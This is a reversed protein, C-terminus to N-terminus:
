GPLRYRPRDRGTANPVAIRPGGPKAVMTATQLVEFRYGGAGPTTAQELVDASFATLETPTANEAGATLGLPRDSFLGGRLVIGVLLLAILPLAVAVVRPGATPLGSRITVRALPSTRPRGAM